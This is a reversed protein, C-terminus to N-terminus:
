LRYGYREAHVRLRDFLRPNLHRLEDATIEPHPRRHVAGADFVRRAGAADYSVALQECIGPLVEELDELRVTAAAIQSARDNWEIWYHMARALPDDLHFVGIKNEIYDWSGASLTLVSGIVALPARVQHLVLDYHDTVSGGGPSVEGSWTVTGPPYRCACRVVPERWARNPDFLTCCYWCVNGDRPTGGQDPMQGEHRIAYGQSRLVAATFKTGSRGCGTVLLRPTTPAPADVSDIAAM